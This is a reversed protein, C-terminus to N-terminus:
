EQVMSGKVKAKYVLAVCIAGVIWFFPTVYQVLSGSLLFKITPYDAEFNHASFLIQNGTIKFIFLILRQVLHTATSLLSGIFMWNYDKGEIFIIAIYLVIYTYMTIRSITQQANIFGSNITGLSIMYRNLMMTIFSYIINAVFIGILIYYLKQTKPTVRIKRVYVLILLHIALSILMLIGSIISTIVSYNNADVLPYIYKFLNIRQVVKIFFITISLGIIWDAYKIKSNM